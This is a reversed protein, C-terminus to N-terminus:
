DDFEALCRNFRRKAALLRRRAKDGCREPRLGPWNPAHQRVQIWYPRYDVREESLTISARYAILFRDAYNGFLLRFDRRQLPFEDPWILGGSLAEYRAKALPNFEQSDLAALAEGSLVESQAM